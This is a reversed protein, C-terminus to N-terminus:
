GSCEDEVGVDGRAAYDGVDKIFVDWDDAVPFDVLKVAVM